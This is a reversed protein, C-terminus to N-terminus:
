DQKKSFQSFWKVFADDDKIEKNSIVAGCDPCLFIPVLVGGIKGNKKHCLQCEIGDIKGDDAEPKEKKEDKFRRKITRTVLDGILVGALALGLGRPMDKVAKEIEEDCPDKLWSHFTSGCKCEERHKKWAALADETKPYKEENTMM